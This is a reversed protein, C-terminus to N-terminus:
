KDGKGTIQLFKKRYLPVAEKGPVTRIQPVGYYLAANRNLWFEPDAAIDEIFVYQLFSRRLVRHEPVTVLQVRNRKQGTILHTRETEDRHIKVFDPLSSLLMAAGSTLAFVSLLLQKRRSIDAGCFLIVCSLIVLLSCVYYSRMPPLPCGAFVLAAFVSLGFVSGSRLLTKRGINRWTFLLTVALAALPVVSSGIYFAAIEPLKSFMVWISLGADATGGSVDAIRKVAGPTTFLFVAGLTWAGLTVALPASKKFCMRVALFLIGALAVNENAYGSCFGLLALLWYEKLHLSAKREECRLLYLCCGLYVPAAWSYLVAGPVWYVTDAPRCVFVALGASFLVTLADRRERIDPTRGLAVAAIFFILATQVISNFINFVTKPCCEVFSGIVNGLRLTWNFYSDVIMDWPTSTRLTYRILFDDGRWPYLINFILYLAFFLAATCCVATFYRNKFYKKVTSIM